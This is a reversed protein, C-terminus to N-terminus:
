NIAENAAQSAEAAADWSKGRSPCRAMVEDIFDLEHARENVTVVACIHPHRRSHRREGDGDPQLPAFAGYDEAIELARARIEAQTSQAYIRLLLEGIHRSDGAASTAISSV